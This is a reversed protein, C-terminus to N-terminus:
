KIRYRSAIERRIRIFEEPIKSITRDAREIFGPIETWFETGINMILEEPLNDVKKIIWGPMRGTEVPMIRGDLM